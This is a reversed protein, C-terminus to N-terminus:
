TKIIVPDYEISIVRILFVKKKKVEAGGLFSDLKGGNIKISMVGSGTIL